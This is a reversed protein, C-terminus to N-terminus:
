GFLTVRGLNSSMVVMRASMPPEPEGRSM